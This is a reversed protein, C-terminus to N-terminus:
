NALPILESQSSTCTYDKRGLLRQILELNILNDDIYLIDQKNTANFQAELKGLM